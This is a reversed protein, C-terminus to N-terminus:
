QDAEEIRSLKGYEAVTQDGARERWRILKHKLLFGYRDKGEMTFELDSKLTIWYAYEMDRYDPHVMLGSCVVFKDSEAYTANHAVIETGNRIVYSRGMGTRIRDALEAALSEETYVSRLEEDLFLLRAIGPADSESAREINVGCDELARKTKELDTLCTKVIVGYKAAYLDSLHAELRTIIEKRGSIGLPKEREILELVEGLDEFGRNTYLQFNRHYKMVVMRLGLEDADYWVSVHEADSGYKWIDAYMYLCNGIDKELYSLIM